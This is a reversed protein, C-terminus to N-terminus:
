PTWREFDIGSMYADLAQLENVGLVGTFSIVVALEPVNLVGDPILGTANEIEIATLTHKRYTYDM